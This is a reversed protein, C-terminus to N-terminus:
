LGHSKPRGTIGRSDIRDKGPFSVAFGCGGSSQGAGGGGGASSIQFLQIGYIEQM